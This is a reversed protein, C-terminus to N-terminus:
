ATTTEHAVNIMFLATWIWFLLVSAQFTYFYHDFFMLVFCVIFGVGYTITRFNNQRRTNWWLKFGYGFYLTFLILTPLGIEAALLLYYNHIPQVEWPKAENDLYQKMHILSESPGLGFTPNDQVMEMAASNYSKREHYAKDFVNGRQRIFPFMIFIIVLASLAISSFILYYRQIGVLRRKNWTFLACLTLGLGTGLWAARSFTLFLAFIYLIILLLVFLYERTKSNASKELAHGTAAVIGLCLFAGFINPHPFVGYSRLFVHGLAEIKAVGWIYPGIISEGVTQLGLDHQTAFQYIGLLSALSLFCLFISVFLNHLEIKLSKITEHLVIGKTLLLLYYISIIPITVNVFNKFFSIYAALVILLPLFTYYSISKWTIPVKNIFWMTSLFCSILLLFVFIDSINFFFITFDKKEGLIFSFSESIAYRINLFLSLVLLTFVFRTLTGPLHISSALKYKGKLFVM